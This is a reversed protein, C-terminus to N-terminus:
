ADRSRLLVAAGLLAAAAWACFVAFGTWPGLTDAGARVTYLASGATGPLYPLVDHQWSSPLVHGIAPLVLLLAFLTAISGATSRLLFGLGVGLAGVVTLYLAVGIVARTAGPAGLGTGHSGLLGQGGLFAVVSAILMTVLTVAAFVALKAWLVPLRRPVAALTARIMGTAYEGSIVLVGLVGIALQALYVGTLSRDIPSFSAREAPGMQSWHAATAWSTLYSVGVMGVVAVAITYWTSRLSRLKIWESALVRAPTVGTARTDRTVAPTLTAASM